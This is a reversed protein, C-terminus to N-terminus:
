ASPIQLPRRLLRRGLSVMRDKRRKLFPELGHAIRIWWVPGRLVCPGPCRRDFRLFVEPERSVRDLLTPTLIPRSQWPFFLTTQSEFTELAQLKASRHLSIDVQLLGDGAVYKRVDGRPLLRWRHYVFYEFLDIDLTRKLVARTVVHNVALHDPHRDFRFPVLVRDARLETLLTLIAESLQRLHQQLEGDPLNLFHLNEPPVGLLGLANKAEQCRVRALNPSVRDRRKLEPAPSKVGDTAYIVHVSDRDELHALTGGCALVCDDMHPAVVVTGKRLVESPEVQIM